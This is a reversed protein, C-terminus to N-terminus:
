KGDELNLIQAGRHFMGEPCGIDNFFDLWNRFWNANRRQFLGPFSPLDTGFVLRKSLTEDALMRRLWYHRVWGVCGSVDGFVNAHRRVLEAWERVRNRETLLMHCGCHACILTVGAAAARELRAPANYRQPGGALTHEHGTHVLVPLRHVRMLDWFADCRRDAPDFNQFSPMLKVLVAGDRMAEDVETAITPSLPNLNVGYLFGPHVRCFERVERNGAALRSNEIACLVCREVPGEALDAVIKRRFEEADRMRMMRCLIRNWLNFGDQGARVGGAVLHAHFDVIL